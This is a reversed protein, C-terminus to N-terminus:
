YGVSGDALERLVDVHGLHRATEEIMHLIVWRLSRGPREGVTLDDLSRTAAVARSRECEAEYFAVADALPMDLHWDIDADDDDPPFEVDLGGVCASFWFREVYALHTVLGLLSTGSGVPSRRAQEDSVGAVKMPLTQRQLDLYAEIMTREDATFPPDTRPDDM